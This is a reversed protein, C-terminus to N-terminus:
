WIELILFTLFVFLQRRLWFAEFTFSSPQLCSRCAPPPFSHECSRMPRWCVSWPHLCLSLIDGSLIHQDDVHSRIPWEHVCFTHASDGLCDKTREFEQGAGVAGLYNQPDLLPSWLFLGRQQSLVSICACYICIETWSRTEKSSKIKDMDRGRREPSNLHSHHDSLRLTMVVYLAYRCIHHVISSLIPMCKLELTSCRYMVHMKRRQRWLDFYSCCIISLEHIRQHLTNLVYVAHKCTQHM